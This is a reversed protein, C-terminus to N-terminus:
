LFLTTVSQAGAAGSTKQLMFFDGSDLMNDITKISRIPKPIIM